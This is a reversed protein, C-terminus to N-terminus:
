AFAQTNNALVKRFEELQKLCPEDRSWGCCVHFQPDDTEQLCRFDPTKVAGCGVRLLDLMVQHFSSCCNAVIYKPMLQLVIAVMSSLMIKHADMWMYKRPHGTGQTVDDDNVVFQFPFDSSTSYNYRAGMMSAAESTLVLSALAASGNSFKNYQQLALEM